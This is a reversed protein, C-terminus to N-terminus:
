ASKKKQDPLAVATYPSYQTFEKQTYVGSSAIDRGTAADVLTSVHGTITVEGPQLIKRLQGQSRLHDNQILDGEGLYFFHDVTEGIRLVPRAGNLGAVVGDAHAFNYLQRLRDRLDSNFRSCQPGFVAQLAQIFELEINDRGSM